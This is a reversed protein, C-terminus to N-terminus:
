INYNWIDDGSMIENAIKVTVTGSTPFNTASTLTLATSTTTLANTSVTTSIDSSVGTIVVNNSTSYMGHNRHRVQVSTSSNTM